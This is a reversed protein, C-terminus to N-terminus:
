QTRDARCLSGRLVSEFEVVDRGVVVAAGVAKGSELRSSELLVELKDRLNLLKRFELTYRGCLNGQSPHRALAALQPHRHYRQRSRRRDIPDFLVSRSDQIFAFDFLEIPNQLLHHNLAIPHRVLERMHKRLSRAPDCEQLFPDPQGCVQLCTRRLASAAPHCLPVHRLLGIVPTSYTHRRVYASAPARM